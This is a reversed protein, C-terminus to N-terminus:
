CAKSATGLGTSPASAEIDRATEIIGRLSNNIVPTPGGSQAVVLNRPQRMAVVGIAQVSDFFALYLTRSPSRCHPSFSLPSFPLFPSPPSLSFPLFPSEGFLTTLADGEEKNM